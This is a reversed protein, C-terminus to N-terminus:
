RQADTVVDTKTFDFRSNLALLRRSYDRAANEDQAALAIKSAHYYFLPEPTGLQLAKASAAKAQELQGNRYLVWAFADWTYVDGRVPIEAEMLNLATKLHRNHDALALALNRNTRENNVAGLKEITEILGEQ